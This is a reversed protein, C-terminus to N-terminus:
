CRAVQLNAMETPAQRFPTSTTAEPCAIDINGSASTLRTSQHESLQSATKRGAHDSAPACCASIQLTIIVLTQPFFQPLSITHTNNTSAEPPKPTNEDTM